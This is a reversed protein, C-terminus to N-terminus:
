RTGGDTQSSHAGYTRRPAAYAGSRHQRELGDRVEGLPTVCPRDVGDAVREGGVCLQEIDVAVRVVVAGDVREDAALLLDNGREQGPDGTGALPDVQALVSSRMGADAGGVDDWDDRDVLRVRLAGAGGSELEPPPHSLLEPQRDEEVGIERGPAPRS